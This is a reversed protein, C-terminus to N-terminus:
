LTDYNQEVLTNFPYVYFIKNINKDLLKLSCNM